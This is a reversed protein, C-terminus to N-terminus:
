SAVEGSWTPWHTTCLRPGYSHNDTLTRCTSQSESVFIFPILPLLRGRECAGGVAIACVTAQFVLQFFSFRIAPITGVPEALVMPDLVRHCCPYRAHRSGSLKITHHLWLLSNRRSTHHGLRIPDTVTCSSSLCPHCVSSLVCLCSSPTPAIV